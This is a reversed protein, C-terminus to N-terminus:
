LTGESEVSVVPDVMGSKMLNISANLDRDISLGCAECTYTRESLELNEKKHGCNSCLKSSPFFRDVKIHNQAKYSLQYLIMGMMSDNFAKRLSKFEVNDKMEQIHLDETVVVGHSKTIATTFKHAVDKRINNIRNQVKQKKVLLKKHNNSNRKSRSLARQANRLKVDLRDLAEPKECVTGDSAVAINSLGVDIGVVSTPNNCVPRLDEDVEVQISVHWQGAYHSVTYSMIKGTYRLPEALLVRGINPLNLRNGYWRAKANDVYFTDRGGKKHFQPYKCQGKWLNRFATGVNHIARQQCCYATESAWEPKEKTWKKTLVFATPKEDSKGDEVDQYMQKWKALAWNYAFRSAGATNCLQREQEKTPYMRIIHARQM